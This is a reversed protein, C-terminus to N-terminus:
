DKLKIVIGNSSLGYLTTIGDGNEMVEISFVSDMPIKNYDYINGVLEGRRIVIPIFSKENFRYPNIHWGKERLSDLRNKEISDNKQNEDFKYSGTKYAKFALYVREALLNLNGKESVISNINQNITDNTQASLQLKCICFLGIVFVIVKKM